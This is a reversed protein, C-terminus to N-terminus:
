DHANELLEILKDAMRVYAASEAAKAAEWASWATSEAANVAAREAARAVASAANDAANAARQAAREAASAASWAAIRATIRAASDARTASAASWAASEARRAAIRDVPLGQALPDLVEACQKVVDCVIPHNITPNVQEDTLLWHLFKWSVLSLNAGVPIASMFREPWGKAVDNPLGEFICDELRALIQPIGFQTEYKAHDDGHVTCGVACGKGNEWYYGQVIEDAARHRALQDLIAAKISPNNHYALMIVTGENQM